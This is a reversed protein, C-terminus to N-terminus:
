DTAPKRRFKCKSLKYTDIIFFFIVAWVCSYSLRRCFRSPFFANNTEAFYFLRNWYHNEDWKQATQIHTCYPQNLLRCNKKTFISFHLKICLLLFCFSRDSIKNVNSVISAFNFNLSACQPSTSTLCLLHLVYRFYVQIMDLWLIYNRLRFSLIQLM